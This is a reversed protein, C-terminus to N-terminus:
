RFIYRIGTSVGPGKMYIHGPEDKAFGRDSMNLDSLFHGTIFLPVKKFPHYDAYLGYLGLLINTGKDRLGTNYKEEASYDTNAKFNKLATLRIVWALKFNNSLKFLFSQQLSITIQNLRYFREYGLQNLLGSEKLDFHHWGLSMAFSNTMGKHDKSFFQIGAGATYRKVSVKSRDLGANYNGFENQEDKIDSNAFLMTREKLMHSVNLGFCNDNNPGPVSDAYYETSVHSFYNAEIATAGKEM